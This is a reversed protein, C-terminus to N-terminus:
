PPTAAPRIVAFPSFSIRPTNAFVTSTTSSPESAEVTWARSRSLIASRKRMGRTTSTPSSFCSSATSAPLGKACSWAAPMFVAAISWIMRWRSGASFSATSALRAPSM